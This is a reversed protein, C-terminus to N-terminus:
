HGSCVLIKNSKTNQQRLQLLDSLYLKVGAKGKFQRCPDKQM